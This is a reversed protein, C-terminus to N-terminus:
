QKEVKSNHKKSCPEVIQDNIDVWSHNPKLIEARKRRIIYIIYYLIIYHM